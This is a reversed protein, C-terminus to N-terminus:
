SSAEAKEKAAKIKAELEDIALDTEKGTERLRTLAAANKEWMAILANIAGAKLYEAVGHGLRELFTEADAGAVVDRDKHDVLTFGDNLGVLDGQQPPPAEESAPQTQDGGEAQGEEREGTEEKVDSRSPRPPVGDVLGGRQIQWGHDARQVLGPGDEATWQDGVEEPFATRLAAAEACKELQGYTRRRWMSNPAGGKKSAYTELWRVRPGPFPVRQGQVIRYVTVQAWEPFTLDFEEVVKDQKDLAKFHHTIEEGFVTEDRGAYSNTRSAITRLYDIGLWVTEVYRKKEGDWIPVVHVPKRMIDLGLSDCYAKAMIIAEATKAAPFIMDTLVKWAVANIGYYGTYSDHYPLRPEVTAVATGKEQAKAM